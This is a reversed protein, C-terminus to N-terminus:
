KRTKAVAPAVLIRSTVKKIGTLAIKNPTITSPSAGPHFAKPPIANINKPKIAMSPRNRDLTLRYIGQM